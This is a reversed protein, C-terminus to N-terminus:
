EEIAPTDVIIIAFTEENDSIDENKTTWKLRWRDTKGRVKVWRADDDGGDVLLTDRYALAAERTSFIQFL